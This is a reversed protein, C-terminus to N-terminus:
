WIWYPYGPVFCESFAVLSAGKEAAEVIYKLVKAVNAQLDFDVSEAQVAAVRVIKSATM